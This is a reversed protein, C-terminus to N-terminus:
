FGGIGVNIQPEIPDKKKKDGDDDGEGEGEGTGDEPRPADENTPDEPMIPDTSCPAIGDELLEENMKM